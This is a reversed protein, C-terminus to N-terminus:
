FVPLTAIVFRCRHRSSSRPLASVATLPSPPRPAKKKAKRRPMMQLDRTGKADLRCLDLPLSPATLAGFDKRRPYLHVHDTM